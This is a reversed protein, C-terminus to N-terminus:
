PKEQARRVREIWARILGRTSSDHDAGIGDDGAAEAGEISSRLLLENAVAGALEKGLEVGWQDFSNVGWIAGQVFIKHEYLAILAGLTFADLRELMLTNSPRNGEVLRHPILAQVRDPASAQSGLEDQLEKESRGRMLAQSQALCNAVLRRHHDPLSHDCAAVVIFDVPVTPTGQHLLQFFAHQGATGPEGWVIPGTPHEVRTGDQRVQKGNSEMDLQQLHAAFRDLRQDYPVVAHSQSGFFHISWIGLLALIIPMNRDPPAELFHRDMAHAGALLRRFRPMGVALAIPLGVSSWLSFRGGVWEAFEFIGQREIGFELAKERASTAAVFHRAVADLHLSDEIWRRAACANAMTEETTLTKSAIVFLTRDPVLSELTSLLSWGDINSVFHIRPGDAFPQLARCVMKPGLESGGIGLHVIDEIRDGRYGRWAGSRVAQVFNEMAQLGGEVSARMSEDVECLPAERSDRLLPHLAARGESRNVALGQFMARAQQRVGREEALAFLLDMTKRMVKNKSYDLLIGCAELSFRDFRDSEEDFLARLELRRIQAHHEGLARWADCDLLSRGGLRAIDFADVGSPTM